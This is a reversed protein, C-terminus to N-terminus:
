RKGHVDGVRKEFRDVMLASVKDWVSQIAAAHLPSAFAYSLYLDVRTSPSSAPTSSSSSSSPPAPSFSWVTSLHRFMSADKATAKVWKHKEMEVLSVYGEDFGMAGIRLEGDMDWREGEPGPKLWGREAVPEDRRASPPGVVLRAARLVRSSSTFPLFQQYSDVDAIVTFLEEPSYPMLKDERYHWIGGHQKLTGKRQSSPSSSSSSAFPSPFGFLSRSGPPALALVRKTALAAM